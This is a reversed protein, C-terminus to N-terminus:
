PKTTVSCLSELTHMKRAYSRIEEDHTVLVITIGKKENLETLLKMILESSEKDLNGTPEDAIIISPENVLARVIAVRQKQGGSLEYPLANKKDFLGFDILLQDIHKKKKKKIHVKSSFAIPVEINEFVTMEPILKFDQFIFGIERNRFQQYRNESFTRVDEGNFTMSGNFDFDLMGIINLLTTKGGGSRGSISVFDGKNIEISLNTFVTTEVYKGIYKKEVNRLNILIDGM